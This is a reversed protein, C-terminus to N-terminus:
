IRDVDFDLLRGSGGGDCLIGKVPVRLWYAANIAIGVYCHRYCGSRRFKQMEQHFVKRNPKVLTPWKEFVDYQVGMMWERPSGPPHRQNPNTCRAAADICSGWLIDEYVDLYKSRAMKVDVVVDLTTFPNRRQSAIIQSEVYASFFSGYRFAFVPLDGADPLLDDRSLDLLYGDVGKLRM